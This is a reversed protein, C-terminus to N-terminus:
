RWLPLRIPYVIEDKPELWNKTSLLYRQAASSGLQIRTHALAKKKCIINYTSIKCINESVLIKEVIDYTNWFDSVCIYFKVKLISSFQLFDM